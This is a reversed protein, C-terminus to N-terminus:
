QGTIEGVRLILAESLQHGIQLDNENFERVKIGGGVDGSQLDNALADFAFAYEQLDRDFFHVLDGFYRLSRRRVIASGSGFYPTESMFALYRVRRWTATVASRATGSAAWGARVRRGAVGGGSPRMGITGGNGDIGISAQCNSPGASVCIGSTPGIIISSMCGISARIGASEM